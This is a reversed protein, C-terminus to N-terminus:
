CNDFCLYQNWWEEDFPERSTTELEDAIRLKKLVGRSEDGVEHEFKRKRGREEIGSSAAVDIHSVPDATESPLMEIPETDEQRHDAQEDGVIGEFEPPPQTGSLVDQDKYESPGDLNEIEEQRTDREREGGVAPLGGLQAADQRDDVREEGVIGGGESTSQTVSSADRDEEGPPSDSDEIEEHLTGGFEVEDAPLGGVQVINQRNDVQEEGVIDEGEFASQTVNSVDGDENGSPSDSDEGVSAPQMVGSTNRDDELIGDAGATEERELEGGDQDEGLCGIIPAVIEQDVAQGESDLQFGEEGTEDSRHSASELRVFAFNPAAGERVQDVRDFGANLGPVNRGAESAWSNMKLGSRQCEATLRWLSNKKTYNRLAKRLRPGIQGAGRRWIMTKQVAPKKGKRKRQLSVAHKGGNEGMEGRESRGMNETQISEAAEISISTHRNLDFGEQGPRDGNLANEGEQLLIQSQSPLSFRQPDPHLLENEMRTARSPPHEYDARQTDPLLESEHDMPTRLRNNRVSECESPEDSGGNVHISASETEDWESMDCARRNGETLEDGSLMNGSQYTKGHFEFIESELCCNVEDQQDVNGSLTRNIDDPHSTTFPLLYDPYVNMLIKFWDRCCLDVAKEINFVFGVKGVEMELIHRQRKNKLTSCYYTRLKSAFLLFKLGNVRDGGLHLFRELTRCRSLFSRHSSRAKISHSVLYSNELDDRIQTWATRTLTRDCDSDFSFYNNSSKGNLM